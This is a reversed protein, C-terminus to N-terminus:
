LSSVEPIDPTRATINIGGTCVSQIEGKETESYVDVIPYTANIIEPQSSEMRYAVMTVVVRDQPPVTVITVNCKDEPIDVSFGPVGFSAAGESEPLGTFNLEMYSNAGPEIAAFHNIASGVQMAMAEAKYQTSAIVTNEVQTYALFFFSSASALLIVLSLIFDLSISGRM